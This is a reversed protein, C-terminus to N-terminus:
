FFTTQTDTPIELGWCDWGEIRQRAFLEIKPSLGRTVESVLGRFKAPKESHQLHLVSSQIFNPKQSHFAKVDGKIGLLLHETQGRFWFGMGHSLVKRWTLMTKYEFGWADLVKLADPLLPVTAWLFLVCKTDCIEKVKLSCIEDISLTAYKAASGSNMSGGTNVNRYRWPPDAYIVQYKKQPLETMYVGKEWAKKWFVTKM